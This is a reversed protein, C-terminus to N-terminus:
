ILSPRNWKECLDYKGSRENFLCPGNPVVSWTCESCRDVDRDQHYIDFYHFAGTWRFGCFFLTNRWFSPRFRFEFRQQPRLLQVGLDDNKSKCHVMLDLGHPLDNVITVRAKHYGLFANSRGTPFRVNQLGLDAGDISELLLLAMFIFLHRM